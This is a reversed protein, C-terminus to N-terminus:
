ARSPPAPEPLSVMAKPEPAEARNDPPSPAPKAPVNRLRIVGRSDTSRQIAADAPGALVLWALLAAVIGLRWPMLVM